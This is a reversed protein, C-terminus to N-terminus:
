YHDLIRISKKQSLLNVLFCPIMEYGGLHSLPFFSQKDESGINLLKQKQTYIWDPATWPDDFTVESFKFHVGFYGYKSRLKNFTSWLFPPCIQKLIKRM